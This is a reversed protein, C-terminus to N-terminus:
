EGWFEKEPRYVVEETAGTFKVIIGKRVTTHDNPGYSVKSSFVGTDFDKLTELGTIFKERTPEPGARRLGEVFVTGSGIGVLAFPNTKDGFKKRLKEVWEKVRCGAPGAGGRWIDCEDWLYYFNTLAEDRATKRLTDLNAVTGVVAVLNSKLGLEYAQRLVIPGIRPYLALLVADPNKEKIKVVQLSSDTADRLITEEAIFKLGSKEMLSKAGKYVETGWLDSQYIIAVKKWGKAIAFDAISRGQNYQNLPGSFIYKASPGKNWPPVYASGAASIAQFPIKEAEIDPLIATAPGTCVCAFLAFVNDTHILKKVAISAKTPDCADDEEIYEIKRGYIGGKENVEDFVTKGGQSWNLGYEAYPGTFASLVGIKIKDKTVGKEQGFGSNALLILLPLAIYIWARKKM